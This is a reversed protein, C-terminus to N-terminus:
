VTCRGMRSEIRPIVVSVIKKERIELRRKKEESINPNKMKKGIIELERRHNILSICYRELASRGLEYIDM